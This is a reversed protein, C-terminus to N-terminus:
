SIKLMNWKLILPVLEDHLAERCSEDLWYVTSDSRSLVLKIFPVDVRNKVAALVPVPGDLAELVANTFEQAESEMFGIEDMVILGGPPTERILRAGLGNFVDLNVDHIRSDCRGVLNDEKFPMGDAPYIRVEHFGDPGAADRRTLFGGVPLRNLKLLNAILTSKGAGREGLILINNM